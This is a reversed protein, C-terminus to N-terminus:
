RRSYRTRRLTPRNRAFLPKWRWDTVSSAWRDEGAGGRHHRSIGGFSFGCGAGVFQSRASFRVDLVAEAESPIRNVTENDTELVTLACTPFWHDRARRRVRLGGAEGFRIVSWRWCAGPLAPCRTKEWGRARRMRRM